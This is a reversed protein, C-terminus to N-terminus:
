DIKSYEFSCTKVNQKLLELPFQQSPVLIVCDNVKLTGILSLIVDATHPNFNTLEIDENYSIYLHDSLHSDYTM